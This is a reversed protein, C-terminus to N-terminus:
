NWWNRCGSGDFVSIYINYDENNTPKDLKVGESKLREKLENTKAAIEENSQGILLKYVKDNYKDTLQRIKNEYRTRREQLDNITSDELKIKGDDDLDLSLRNTFYENDAEDTYTDYQRLLDILEEIKEVKKNASVSEENGNKINKKLEEIAVSYVNVCYNHDWDRFSWLTRRFVHFNHFFWKINHFFDRPKDIVYYYLSDYCRKCLCEKKSVEKIYEEFPNTKKEEM